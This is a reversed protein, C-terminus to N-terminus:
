DLEARKSVAPFEHMLPEAIVNVTKQLNNEGTSNMSGGNRGAVSLAPYPSDIAEDLSPADVAGPQASSLWEHRAASGLTASM